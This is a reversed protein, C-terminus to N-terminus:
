FRLLAAVGQGRVLLAAAVESGVGVVALDADQLVAAEVLAERLDDAAETPNGDSPCTDTGTPYLLGDLPCRRGIAAFNRDLILRQV